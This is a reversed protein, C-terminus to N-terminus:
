GGIIQKAIRAATPGGRANGAAFCFLFLAAGRTNRLLLPEAVVEFVSKLQRVFFESIRKEDAIKQVIEVGELLVSKETQYFEEEWRDTGFTCTLRSAWSEPPKGHAVLLRNTAFLPFLLWLDIAKTEAIAKVLSWEVQMGFPDLFVVARNRRWDSRKCWDLLHDNADANVVEIRDRKDPFQDRVKQLEAFLLPDREIFLYNDFSPEVELARVVSGKKYEQAQLLLESRLEHLEPVMAALPIEPIEFRMYGTGAFADVYTIRFFQARVNRKLITTYAKLYKRLCELKQQTWPGGFMEQQTDSM